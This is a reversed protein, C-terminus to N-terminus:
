RLATWMEKTLISDEIDEVTDMLTMYKSYAYHKFGCKQQVRASQINRLFHGCFIVDLGADEFLYRIVEQVAEPMLGQGWYDKSLAFGIEMCKLSDFEPYEEARYDKIGVSGIEKGNYEVAFTKKESCFQELIGRSEELSGHHKWGAMEGVGEVSAYEFFDNLDDMRWPRLVLRETALVIGTIDIAANM